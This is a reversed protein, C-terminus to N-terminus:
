SSLDPEGCHESIAHRAARELEIAAAWDSGTPFIPTGVTVHVANHRSFRHQGPPFIARTGHVVVPVVPRGSRAAIVFAGMHFPRLGPTPSLGGEPFLVLRQGDQAAATLRDTDAVGQERDTREVFLTGVRRLLFGTTRKTALIEAAVFTYRGPLAAILAIVDLYSPHNAVVICGQVDALSEAHDVALRTRTLRALSLAARRAIDFARNPFVAAGLVTPGGVLVVLFWCWVTFAVDSVRRVGRRLPGTMAEAAFRLGHWWAPRGPAGVVGQEYSGRCAARRIKGSATKPVAGPPALVVDDPAAGLLDVSVAAIRERLAARAATATQPTEAVVILREAKGARSTTAFVAVCDKSIGPLDGVAAELEEPHLNRGARIILDKVRGTVYLEGVDRYGLDGTDWWGRRRLAATELPNRFYGPTASPGRFEIRGERRDDTENGATDVIRIEHGPLPVGCGVFRLPDPDDKAAPRARGSRLFEERDVRDVVPGRGIPPFTLGVCSEALGYAPTLAQRRLGYPQFRDAFRALTDARVPEAGSFALRWSSLDLGDLEADDIERVCLEYAFNAGASLSARHNHVAWLWRSPRTLFASPPMAVLPLGFYLSSLWTGILGMDHYLPLWSVCVDSTSVGAAQGMARINALLNAHTLMVGKPNGTSGSTYQLLAVDRANRRVAGSEGHGTLESSTVVHRLSAVHGRVLKTMRVAASDTVLVRAEANALIGVQRRLHNTLQSPRAPPYIPVPVGGALMVGAFCAFYERGTPLMLAVADGPRVNRAALGAAVTAAGHGLDSYSLDEVATDHLIRLHQRQPHVKIHWDLAEVLTTITDPIREAQPPLVQWDQAPRPAGTRSSRRVVALLDRPTEISGLTGEPLSVGFAGEMRTLLEALALSDLGLDRDFASDLTAVAALDATRREAVLGRVASVLLTEDSAATPEAASM